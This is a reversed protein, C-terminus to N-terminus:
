GVKVSKRIKKDIMEVNIDGQICNYQVMHNRTDDCM